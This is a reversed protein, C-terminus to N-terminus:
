RVATLRLDQLLHLSVLLAQCCVILTSGALGEAEALLPDTRFLYFILARVAPTMM